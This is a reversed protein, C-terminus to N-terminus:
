VLLLLYFQLKLIETLYNTQAKKLPINNFVFIIITYGVFRFKLNPRTTAIISDREYNVDKKRIVMQNDKYRKSGLGM